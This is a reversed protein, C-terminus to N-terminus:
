FIKRLFGGPALSRGFRNKSLDRQFENTKVMFMDVAVAPNNVSWDVPNIPDQALERMAGDM